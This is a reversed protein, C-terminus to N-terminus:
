MQKHCIPIAITPLQLRRTCSVHYQMVLRVVVSAIAYDFYGHVVVSTIVYDFYGVFYNRLAARQLDHCKATTIWRCRVELHLLVCCGQGSTNIRKATHRTAVPVTAPGFPASCRLFLIQSLLFHGHFPTTRHQRCLRRQYGQSAQGEGGQQHYASQCGAGVGVFVAKLVGSSIDRAM